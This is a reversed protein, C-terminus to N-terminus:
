CAGQRRDATPQALDAALSRLADQMAEAEPVSEAICVAGFKGYAPLTSLLHLAVGRKRVPDFHLPSREVADILTHPRLGIYRDSAISDSALYVRRSPGVRFDGSPDPTVGLLHSVMDFGHRTGTARLNIECGFLHWSGSRLVAIFDVGYDGRHIGQAALATGVRLGLDMVTSRYSADAPFRSGTYTQGNPALVQEHTSVAVPGDATFRGQFSPSAFDDGTLFEEALIGAEAVLDAFAPWALTTDIVQASPLLAEVDAASAVDPLDLLANGMGAAYATSDLKLVFRHIGSQVLPVLAAALDPLSRVLPTARAVPVGLSSFLSRSAAKTGLPISWSPAQEPIVGLSSALRELPESPEFYSLLVERGAARERAVADHLFSRAAIADPHTADLLKESLWRPSRDAISLVTVRDGVSPHGALRGFYAIQAAMDEMAPASVCIVSGGPRHLAALIAAGIPREPYLTSGALRELVAPSCERSQVSIWMM